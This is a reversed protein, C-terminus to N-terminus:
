SNLLEADCNTLFRTTFKRPAKFQGESLTREWERLSTVRVAPGLMVPNRVAADLWFNSLKGDPGVLQAVTAKGQACLSVEGGHKDQWLKNLKSFTQQLQVDHDLALGRVRLGRLAISLPARRAFSFM